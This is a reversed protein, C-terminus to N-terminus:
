EDGIDIDATDLGHKTALRKKIYEGAATLAATSQTDLAPRMFPRASQGPHNVSKVIQDGLSLPGGLKGTITHPNTGYEVMHAVFAHKGTAKLSVTVKGGRARTKIKLGDRMEGSAFAANEKAHAMIPKMGARLAGRVINREIKAPLTDLMKQLEALGKVFALDSM